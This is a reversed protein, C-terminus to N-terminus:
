NTDSITVRDHVKRGSNVSEPTGGLLWRKQMASTGSGRSANTWKTFGTSSSHTARSTSVSFQCMAAALQLDGALKATAPAAM